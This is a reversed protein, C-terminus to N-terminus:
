LGNLQERLKNIGEYLEIAEGRLEMDSVHLLYDFNTEAELEDLRSIISEAMKKILEDV